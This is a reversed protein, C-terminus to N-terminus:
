MQRKHFALFATTVSFAFLFFFMPFQFEFYTSYEDGKEEEEEKEEEEVEEVEKEVEEGGRDEKLENEDDCRWVEHEDDWMILVYGEM